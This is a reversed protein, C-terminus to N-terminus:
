YETINERSVSEQTKVDNSDTGNHVDVYRELVARLITKLDFRKVVLVDNGWFADDGDEAMKHEIGGPTTVWYSATWQHGDDRNEMQVFFEDYFDTANPPGTVLDINRFYYNLVKPLSFNNGFEAEFERVEFPFPIESGVRPLGGTGSGFAPRPKDTVFQPPSVNRDADGSLLRSLLFLAVACAALIVIKLAVPEM